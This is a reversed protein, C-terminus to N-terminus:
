PTQYSDFYESPPMMDATCTTELSPRSMFINNNTTKEANLQFINKFM